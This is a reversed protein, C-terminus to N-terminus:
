QKGDKSLIVMRIPEPSLGGYFKAINDKNGQIKRNITKLLEFAETKKDSM